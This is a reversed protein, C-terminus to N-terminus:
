GTRVAARALDRVFSEAVEVREEPGARDIADLLASAFVAGDAVRGVERVHEATSVGFGIALPLNTRSRVRALYGDLDPLQQRAGTVGTLSVCYIFGSARQAVEDIRDDTSTPALMYVLDRGHRRCAGLLEDSEEAPLDPVIAGDVGVEAATAAFREVGFQLIPNYYGMLVLPVMVGQERLRAVMAFCDALRTGNAIAVQSTRQVTAGDALPDSFPVGIELIDAGGRVMALLLRESEALTPYGATMFPMLAVRRDAHARSFTEGIRSATLLRGTM